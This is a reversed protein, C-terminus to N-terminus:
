GSVVDAWRAPLVPVPWSPEPRWHEWGDSFPSAWREVLEIVREGEARAAAAEDASITGAAVAVPVEHEDKWSWTGDPHVWLDLIWDSTDVAGNRRVFPQELNVYWGRFRESPGLLAVGLPRGRSSPAATDGSGEM